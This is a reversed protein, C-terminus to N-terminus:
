RLLQEISLESMRIDPCVEAAGLSPNAYGMYRLPGTPGSGPFDDEPSEQSLLTDRVAACAAELPMEAQLVLLQRAAETIPTNPYTQQLWAQWQTATNRDSERLGVLTLRFAAFQLTSDRSSPFEDSWQMDELSNDEIVQQYLTRARELDNQEFAENAEYLIHFRYNTPDLQVQALSVVAGNWAWVETRTRQAGAGASGIVGTHLVLDAIGDGTEDTLGRLEPDHLVIAQGSQFPETQAAILPRIQGEQHGLMFYAHTCTHAGCVQRRLLVEDTSDGTFDQVALVQPASLFFDQDLPIIPERVERFYDVPQFFRYLLSDGIVWFDGSRGWPMEDPGLNITLLWEARGDGDLDATQLDSDQDQWDAAQLVARVQAPDTGQQRAQELWEILAETPFRQQLAAPDIQQRNISQLWDQQQTLPAKTPLSAALHTAQLSSTEILAGQPVTETGLLATSVLAATLLGSLAFTEM